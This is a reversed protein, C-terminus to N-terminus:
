RKRLTLNIEEILFAKFKDKTTGPKYWEKLYKYLLKQQPLPNGKQRTSEKPRAMLYGIYHYLEIHTFWEYLTGYINKVEGWVNKLTTESHKNNQFYGSFYRFAHFQDTDNDETPEGLVRQSCMLEFIYDIRTESSNGDDGVSNGQANDDDHFFLWFEDNQLM